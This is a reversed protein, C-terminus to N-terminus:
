NGGHCRGLLIADADGSRLDAQRAIDYCNLAKVFLALREFHIGIYANGSKASFLLQHGFATEGHGATTAFHEALPVDVDAIGRGFSPLLDRLAYLAESCNDELVLGVM